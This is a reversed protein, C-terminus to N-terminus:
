KHDIESNVITHVKSKFFINLQKKSFCITMLNQAIGPYIGHLPYKKLLALNKKELLLDGDLFIIDPVYINPDYSYFKKGDNGYYWEYPKKKKFDSLSSYTIHPYSTGSCGKEFNNIVSWTLIVETFLNLIM